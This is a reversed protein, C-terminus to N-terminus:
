GKEHPQQIVVTTKDEDGFLGSLGSMMMGMGMVVALMVIAEIWSTGGDPPPPTPALTGIGIDLEACEGTGFWGQACVRITAETVVDPVTIDFWYNGVPNTTSSYHIASFGDYIDMTVPLLPEPIGFMGYVTGTVRVEQGPTLERSPIETGVPHELRISIM